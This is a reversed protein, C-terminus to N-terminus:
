KFPEIRLRFSAGHRATEIERQFSEAYFMRQTAGHTPTWRYPGTFVRRRKPLAVDLDLLVITAFM